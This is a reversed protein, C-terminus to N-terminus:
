QLLKEKIKNIKNQISLNSSFKTEIRKLNELAKTKQNLMIYVSILYFEISPDNPNINKATIFKEEASEIRGNTLLFMGYEKNFLFSNYFKREFVSYYDESQVNMKRILLFFIELHRESLNTNKLDSNIKNGSLIAEIIEIFDKIYGNVALMSNNKYISLYQKFYENNDFMISYKIAECIIEEESVTIIEHYDHTFDNNKKIITIAAKIDDFCKEKQNILSFLKARQLFSIPQRKDCNISKNIHELAVQLNLKEMYYHSLVRHATSLYDPELNKDRVAIQFYRATQEDDELINYTQGLQFALYSNEKEAFEKLLLDLNRKAKQQLEDKTLNYGYHIIEINSSVIQIKHKKISSIIQEHVKGEFVLSRKNPFLRPYMMLSDRGTYENINRIKCNYAKTPNSNKIRRVEDLSNESLIEDADLYLIFDGTSNQLAYNRAASFDNSWKFDFIKASYKKAIEKTRDNSGTDVIVIEDVIEKISSLCKELFKEENKVIMSLTLM